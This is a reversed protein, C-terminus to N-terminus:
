KRGRMLNFFRKVINNRRTTEIEDNTDSFTWNFLPGRATDMMKSISSECPLGDLRLEDCLYDLYRQASEFSPLDDTSDMAVKLWAYDFKRRLLRETRLEVIAYRIREAMSGNSLLASEDVKVLEMEPIREAWQEILAAMDDPVRISIEKM